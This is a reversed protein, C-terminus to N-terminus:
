KPCHKGPRQWWSRTGCPWGNGFRRFILRKASPATQVNCCLLFQEPHRVPISQLMVANLLTFISTNAGIGLALTLVAVVTFGPNKRMMRLGYLLDQWLTEPLYGKTSIRM